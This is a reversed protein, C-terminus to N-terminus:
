ETAAPARQRVIFAALEALREDDIKDTGFKPMQAEEGFLDPQSSDRIIRAVWAASGHGLLNPGSGEAGAEIEHCNQCDAEDDWLTQGAAALTADVDSEGQLRWLFEVIADLQDDPLPEIEDVVNGQATYASMGDHKTGGFFRVDNPDRILAALWERSSYDTLSPAEEGGLGGLEHCNACHEDYLARVKYEPDNQFVAPGGQPLVGDLAFTRARQAQTYAQAMAKQYSENNADQSLSLGTLAVVGALMLGLVSLVGLRGVKGAMGDVFPVVVLFSVAAGPIVMTAIPELSGEFFTRLKYLFLFYWEPRAQFGSTPDAPGFLESGHSSITVAVLTGAVLVMALMDILLQGAAFAQVRVTGEEAQKAQARRGLVVIGTLLAAAVLPLVFAHAACLRTLTLNGPEAGGQVVTRLAGGGPTQEMIGLEVQAAWYGQEDWPLINGTVGLAMTVILLGVAAIWVMERPRRYERSVALSFLYAVIALLMASTGYHHLGRIIWGSAIQDNLYATSAWADTASPSYHAALLVGLVAQQVFLYVLVAPLVNALRPGGPVPHNAFRRWLGPLATREELWAWM